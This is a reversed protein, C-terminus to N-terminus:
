PKVIAIKDLLLKYYKLERHLFPAVLPEKAYNFQNGKKRQQNALVLLKAFNPTAPEAKLYDKSAFYKLNKKATYVAFDFEKTLYFYAAELNRVEVEYIVLLNKSLRQKMMQLYYFAREYNGTLLYVRISSLAYMLTFSHVQEESSQAYVYQMEAEAEDFKQLIICLQIFKSRQANTILQHSKEEKFFICYKSYSKEWQDTYFLCEAYKLHLNIRESENIRDTIKDLVDIAEELFPFSKEPAVLNYYFLNALNACYTAYSDKVLNAKQKLRLLDEEIKMAVAPLEMRKTVGELEITCIMLRSETFIEQIRKEKKDSISKLFKNAFILATPIKDATRAPLRCQMRFCNEYFIKQEELTIATSKWARERVKIQHLFIDTLGKNVLFGLLKNEQDPVFFVFCKNLVVSSIKDFHTRSVGAKAIAKQIDFTKARSLLMIDLVEREKGIVPLNKLLIREKENLSQIFDFLYPM